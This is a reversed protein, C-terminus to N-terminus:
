VGEQIGGHQLRRNAACSMSACPARGATMWDDIGECKAADFHSLDIPTLRDFWRTLLDFRNKELLSMPYSKFVTHNYLVLESLAQLPPQAADFAPPLRRV